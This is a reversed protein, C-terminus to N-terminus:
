KHELLFAEAINLMKAAENRIAGNNELMPNLIDVAKQIWHYLM